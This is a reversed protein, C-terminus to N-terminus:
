SSRPVLHVTWPGSTSIAPAGGIPALPPPGPVGPATVVLHDRNPAPPTTAFGPGSCVDDVQRDLRFALQSRFPEDTCVQFPPVAAGTTGRPLRPRARDVATDLSSALAARQRLGALDDGAQSVRLVVGAPLLLLAVAALPIVIQGRAARLKGSGIGLDRLECAGVAALVAVVAGVPVVFRPLSPYGALVQLIAGGVWLVAAAGLVAIVRNWEQWSLRRPTWEPSVGRPVLSRPKGVLRPRITPWLVSLAGVIVLFSSASASSRLVGGVTSSAALPSSRALRSGGFPSGSGVWEPGLWLLPVTALVIVARAVNAPSPGRGRAWAAAAVGLLPWAEPRILAAGWVLGFCAGSVALDESRAWVLAAALLLAVLVPESGGEMVLKVAHDLSAVLIAAVAAAIATRRPSTLRAALAGALVLSAFGAMRVLLLWATPASSGLPTFIAGVFAPLPKWATAGGTDLNGNVIERGWHMWTWADFVPAAPVALSAVSLVVVPAAWAGTARRM